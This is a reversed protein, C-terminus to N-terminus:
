NKFKMFINSHRLLSLETVQLVMALLFVKLLVYITFIAHISAYRRHTELYGYKYVTTKQDKYNLWMMLFGTKAMHSCCLRM